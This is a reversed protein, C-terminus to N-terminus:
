SSRSTSTEFSPRSPFVSAVRNGDPSIAAAVVTQVPFLRCVTDFEFDLPGDPAPKLTMVRVSADVAEGGDDGAALFRKGDRSFDVMTVGYFGTIARWQALYNGSEADCIVTGQWGAPVGVRRGDPSFVPRGVCDDYGELLRAVERKRGVDWMYVQRPAPRGAESSGDPRPAAPAGKDLASTLLRKGDRSFEVATGAPGALKALPRPADAASASAFCRALLVAVIIRRARNM